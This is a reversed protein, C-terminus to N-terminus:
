NMNQYLLFLLILLVVTGIGVVQWFKKADRKNRAEALQQKRSKSRSKAM